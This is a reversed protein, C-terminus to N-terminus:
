RNRMSFVYEIPVVYAETFGNIETLCNVGLLAGNVRVLPGGCNDQAIRATVHYTHIGGLRDNDPTKVSIKGPSLCEQMHLPSGLTFVPEETEVGTIDDFYRFVPFEEEPARRVRLKALNMVTDLVLLDAGYELGESTRVSIWAAGKVINACTVVQGDKSFFFGSGVGRDTTVQLLAPKALEEVDKEAYLPLTTIWVSRSPDEWMVECGLAESVFRLPVYTRGNVIRAPVDLTYTSGDILNARPAGIILDFGRAGRFGIVQQEDPYWHVKGNLYEVVSRLPIMVRGSEIFPRDGGEQLVGDVLINIGEDQAELGGPYASLHWAFVLVLLFSLFTSIKGYAKVSKQM